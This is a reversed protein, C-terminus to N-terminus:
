PCGQGVPGPPRWSATLAWHGTAAGLPYAWAQALHGSHVDLTWHANTGQGPGSAADRRHWGRRALATTMAAITSARSRSTTFTIFVEDTGWGAHSGPIQPCGGIWRAPTARVAVQTTGEPVAAQVSQVQAFIVAGNRVPHSLGLAAYILVAVLAAALFHRLRPSM